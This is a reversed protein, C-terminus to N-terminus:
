YVGCANCVVERHVGVYPMSSSNLVIYFRWWAICFRKKGDPFTPNYTARKVCARRPRKEKPPWSPLELLPITPDPPLAQTAERRKSQKKPVPSSPSIDPLGPLDGMLIDRLQRSVDAGNDEIPGIEARDQM